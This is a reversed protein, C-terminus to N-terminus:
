CTADQAANLAQGFLLPWVYVILKKDVGAVLSGTAHFTVQTILLSTVDDRAHRRLDTHRFIGSDEGEEKRGSTDVATLCHTVPHM